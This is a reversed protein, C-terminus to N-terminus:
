RSLNTSCLAELFDDMSNVEKGKRVLDKILSFWPPTSLGISNLFDEKFFFQERTLWDVKGKDLVGVRDAQFTEEILHTFHLIGCGADVLKKFLNLMEKRATPDLYSTVEDSLLYRPSTALAGALSAKQKEGGSLSALPTALPYDLGVEKLAVIVKEKVERQLCGLSRPGFAVDEGLSVGVFQSDPNEFLLFVRRRAEPSPFTFNDVEVRGATPELLGALIRALTTKGSALPGLVVLLQSPQLEVEAGSLIEKSSGPYSFTLGAAKLM